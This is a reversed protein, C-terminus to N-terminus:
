AGLDSPKLNDDLESGAKDIPKFAGPMALEVVAVAGGVATEKLIAEASRMANLPLTGTVREKVVEAARGIPPLIVSM